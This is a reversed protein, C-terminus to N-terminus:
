SRASGSFPIPTRIPHGRRPLFVEAVAAIILDGLQNHGEIALEVAGLRQGVITQLSSARVKGVIFLSDGYIFPHPLRVNLRRLFAEDGMWHTVFQGALAVRLAGRGYPAPFGADACSHLDERAQSPDWFPWGTTPNVRALRPEAVLRRHTAAGLPVPKAEAVVWTILDSLTLPGKVITPLTEEEAVDEWYRPVDGRRPPEDDLQRVLAAIEQPSYTYIERELFRETGRRLPYLTVVGDGRVVEPGGGVPVCRLTSVVEATARDRWPPGDRVETIALPTDFALGLRIHDSWTFTMETSLALLGQAGAAEPSGVAEPIRLSLVLLPPAIPGAWASATGYAPDLYLPNEDGTAELFRTVALWNVVPAGHPIEETLAGVRAKAADTFRRIRENCAAIERGNRREHM